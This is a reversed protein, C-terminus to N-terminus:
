PVSVKLSCDRPLVVPKKWQIGVPNHVAATSIKALYSVHKARFGHDTALDSALWVLNESRNEGGHRSTPESFLCGLKGFEQRGANQPARRRARMPAVRQYMRAETTGTDIRPGSLDRRTPM